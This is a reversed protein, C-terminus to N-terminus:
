KANGNGNASRCTALGIHRDAAGYYLLWEGKFNVLGNAVTAPVSCYGQKEWDFEPQLFPQDMNRRATVLDERNILAQGLAWTGQPLPLNWLNQGNFMLLIGDGRWLAIAGSEHQGGWVQKGLPKWDILNDSVALASPHTYYMLYQGNIKVPLLKESAQRTVVVGSRSGGIAGPALKAFAPGHKQWHILDKSTAVCMSDMGSEGWATYNMYYTGDEGEVVHLDQCGGPWEYKTFADQDPFVVPVPHRTFRRGDESWALGIRSTAQDENHFKWWCTDDARYLLCVKGDKVVVAPNYVNQGEWLVNTGAVPCRFKAEPNPSLVPKALKVFPGMAWGPWAGQPKQGGAAASNVAVRERVVPRLAAAWIEYGKVTLHVGDHSVEATLQGDQDLLQSSIDLFRIWKGDDLKAIRSNIEQIKRRDPTMPSRDKPFTGLLLVQSHPLQERLRSVITSVGGAIDAASQSPAAVVNNVGIMLVAVRPSIGEIAGNEFQWLIHSTQSGAIGINVAHHPVFEKEWIAKGIDIWGSTISDGIFLIDLADAHSRVDAVREGHRLRWEENPREPKAPDNTPLWVAPQGRVDSGAPLIQVEGFCYQSHREHRDANDLPIPSLPAAPDTLSFLMRLWGPQLNAPIALVLDSEQVVQGAPWRSTPIPLALNTSFDPPRGIGVLHLTLQLDRRTAVNARWDLRIRLPTGAGVKERDLEVRVIAPRFDAATEPQAMPAPELLRGALRAGAPVISISEDKGLSLVLKAGTVSVGRKLPVCGDLTIRYLDVSQVESWDAPLQWPRNEYGPRSYAIIEKENWLAPVFLDDNQRLTFEGKRIINRGAEALAVIGDSYYLVDNELKTRERRSLYYWPLTTRCFMGLFGPLQEKDAKYIEEGHMSSGFRFDGDGGRDTRGRAGLYEPIEMQDWSYWWSMAQLGVFHEGPPHAWGTGEGTVDFGRDRWYHFIKRQTEVYKDPTLGGNEPKAHWPSIPKGGDRQAVFVDIHITHGEKLEPIMEILGDIRRQALGAEWERPYVVNYMDEGKVQIGLTYPQGSEDKAICDKAMYEDWLSSQKYADAMNIHLSVTTNFKRAARILWRLSDLATADQARKMRPNVEDWAPYGHDHGGKQWGVLYIIKPMGRTLNDTKRIVELAEEFTCIVEHGKRFTPDNALREVPEGEMGLFLKLVLTQHYDRFFPAVVVEASASVRRGAQVVVAQVTAIGGEKPVVKDGEIAVVAVKGSAKKTRATIVAEAPRLIRQSGDSYFATLTLKGTGEGERVPRLVKRDIALVIRDLTKKGPEAAPPRVLKSKDVALLEFKVPKPEGKTGAALVEFEGALYERDGSQRDANALEVRPGGTPSFLGVLVRYKGPPSGHPVTIPQPGEQVFRDAPWATTPLDPDFDAGIHQGDPRVVHVFVTMDSPSPGNSHFTYTAKVTEGPAIQGRDLEMRALAPKFDAFAALAWCSPLALALNLLVLPLAKM